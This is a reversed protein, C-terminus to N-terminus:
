LLDRNEQWDMEELIFFQLLLLAFRLIHMNWNAGGVKNMGMGSHFDNIFLSYINKGGNCCGDGKTKYLM